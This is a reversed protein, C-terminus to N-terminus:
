HTVQSKYAHTLTQTLKSYNNAVYNFSKTFGSLLMMYYSMAPCEEISLM